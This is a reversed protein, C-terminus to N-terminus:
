KEAAQEKDEHHDIERVDAGVIFSGKKGSQLVLGTPPDNELRTVIEGLEELVAKSLSNASEGERDLTLWCVGDMDTELSWNRYSSESM